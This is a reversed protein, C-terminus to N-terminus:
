TLVYAPWRKPLYESWSTSAEKPPPYVSNWDGRQYISVRAALRWRKPTITTEAQEARDGRQVPRSRLYEDRTLTRSLSEVREIKTEAQRGSGYASTPWRKLLYERPRGAKLAKSYYDNWSACGPWRKPLYESWCSFNNSSHTVWLKLWRKLLYESWRAILFANESPWFNWDGRHYIIM